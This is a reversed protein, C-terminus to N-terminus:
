ALGFASAAAVGSALAADSDPANLRVANTVTANSKEPGSPAEAGKAQFSQAQREQFRRRLIGPESSCLTLRPEHFFIRFAPACLLLLIIFLDFAIRTVKQSTVINAM